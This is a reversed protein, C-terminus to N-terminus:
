CPVSIQAAKGMEPGPVGAVCASCLDWEVWFCAEGTREVCGSCDMDTCGCQRCARATTILICKLAM